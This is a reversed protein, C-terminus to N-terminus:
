RNLPDTRDDSAADRQRREARDTIRVVRLDSARELDFKAADAQSDSWRGGDTLYQDNLKLVYTKM